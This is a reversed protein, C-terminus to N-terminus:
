ISSSTSRGSSVALLFFWNFTLKSDPLPLLIHLEFAGSVTTSRRESSPFVATRRLSGPFLTIEPSGEELSIETSFSPFRCMFTLVIRFLTRFFRSRVRDKQSAFPTQLCRDAERERKRLIQVGLSEGRSWELSEGM